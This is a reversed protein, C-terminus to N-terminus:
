QVMKTGNALLVLVALIDTKIKAVRVATKQQRGKCVHAGAPNFVDISTNTGQRAIDKFRM